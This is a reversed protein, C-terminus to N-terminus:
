KRFDSFSRWIQSAIAWSYASISGGNDDFAVDNDDDFTVDDDDVADDDDLIDDDVGDDGTNLVLSTGVLSNLFKFQVRAFHLSDSLDRSCRSKPVHPIYIVNRMEAHTHTHGRDCGRACHVDLKTQLRM